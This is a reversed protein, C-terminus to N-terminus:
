SEMTCFTDDLLGGLVEAALEFDAMEMSEASNHSGGDNRVFLMASAVGERSSPATTVVAAASTWPRSPGSTCSSTCGRGCAWDAILGHAFNEGDGYSVRTVGPPDSSHERLRAFADQAKAIEPTATM